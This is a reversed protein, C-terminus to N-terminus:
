RERSEVRCSRWRSYVKRCCALYVISYFYVCRTIMHDIFCVTILFSL